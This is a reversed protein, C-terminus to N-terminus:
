ASACTGSTIRPPPSSSTTRASAATSARRHAQRSPHARSRRSARRSSRTSPSPSGRGLCRSRVDTGTPTPVEVPGFAQVRALGRDLVYVRGSPDAWPDLPDGSFQGPKSGGSGWQALLSGSGDFMLMRSNKADGVYVRGARDCTVRLEASLKGDGKFYNLYDGSSTFKWILCYSGDAVYVNGEEDVAVDRPAIKDKASWKGLFGGNASFHQIRANRNDCVYVSGDPAVAIGEPYEGFQGDGSGPGGFQGLLTGDARYREVVQKHLLYIVGTPGAAIDVCGSPVTWTAIWVGDSSFRQVRCNDTDM